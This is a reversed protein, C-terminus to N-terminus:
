LNVPVLAGQAKGGIEETGEACNKQSSRVGLACLRLARL